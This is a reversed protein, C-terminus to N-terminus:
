SPKRTRSRTPKQNRGATQRSRQQRQQGASRGGGARHQGNRRATPQSQRPLHIQSERWQGPQLQKLQWPGIAVRILRLTPHGVTATMRRVQRNRGERIKLEIWCTVDNNRQRIPPNRPWPETPEIRRCRAPRTLGDKLEVGKILKEIAEDSIEGELQAWYTKELKFKPDTIQQQARGDDTLVLLGESDYDLRGAAYLGPQDIYDALTGRGNPDTFQSLVQFPKNLLVIRSM